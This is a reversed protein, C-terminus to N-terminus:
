TNAGFQVLLDSFIAINEPATKKQYSLVGVRFIIFLFAPPM